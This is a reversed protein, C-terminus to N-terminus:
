AVPPTYIRVTTTSARLQVFLPIWDVAIKTFSQASEKQKPLFALSRWVQIWVNSLRWRLMDSGLEQSHHFLEYLELSGAGM